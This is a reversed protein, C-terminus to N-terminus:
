DRALAIIPDLAAARRAPLYGFVIGIGSSCVFAAGIAPISYTIAFTPVLLNFIAGSGIALLIGILGGVSSVLVAEVLFQQLIDSTRAGVAM